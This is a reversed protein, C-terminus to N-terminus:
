NKMFIMFETLIKVIIGDLINNNLDSIWKNNQWITILSDKKNPLKINLNYPNNFHVAEFM